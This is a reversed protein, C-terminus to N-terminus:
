RNACIAYVRLTWALVTGDEETATMRSGFTSSSGATGVDTSTVVIEGLADDVAYGAGTALSGSPCYVNIGAGPDSAPGADASIVMQSYTEDACIAYAHVDWDTPLPDTEVAKVDVGSARGTGDAVPAVAYVGVEGEGGVIDLGTGLLTKGASCDASATKPSDSNSVSPLNQLELGSPKDACIAVATISWSGQSGPDTAKGTVSVQTLDDSPAIKDIVVKGNGGTIYASANVVYKQAPSTLCSATAGTHVWVQSLSSSEVREVGTITTGTAAKSPAAGSTGLWAVLAAVLAALVVKRM